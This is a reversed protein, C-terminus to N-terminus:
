RGTDVFRAHDQKIRTIPMVAPGQLLRRAEPSLSLALQLEGSLPMASVKDPRASQGSAADKPLPTGTTRGLVSPVYNQTESPLGNLWGDGYKKIASDVAGPGANYAALAKKRDGGYRQLMANLYDKGFRRHEAESDNQLPSIGFGPNSGTGLMIQAIGRAGAPSTLLGAGATHRGGSEQALVAEFLADGGAGAGTRAPDRKELHSRDAATASRMAAIERERREREAELQKAKAEGLTKIQGESAAFDSSEAPTATGDRMKARLADRRDMIAQRKPDFDGHIAAIRGKSDNEIVSQMISETTLKGDKGAMFIIGARMQESIPILKSALDTKINDILNKSDRIDSGQTREQDRSAVLEALVQKQTEDDGNMAGDLRTREESSLADAGTRRRLSEALGQRDAGSGYLAMSLNGIGSGSLKTLDGAYKEMGGMQNPNLVHFAAAQSMSLGLQNATAQLMAKPDNGYDSRLQGLTAGLLSEDGGPRTLGYKKYFDGVAGGGFTSNATSFAGGERWLQTDFVDMGRKAGLRGTFFQSAEGKGGGAALTSNVRALVGSAGSPDLGPIGSGVMASFMGAYGATGVGGLTARTQASAYDGIAEMVEGAQAFANSKGITEGILMAFRRTDQESRTVGIGRMRGLVNVGQEPELGFSRALGVGSGVEGPLGNLQEGTLNGLKAFQTSLKGAQEFTIRNADATGEVAAKLAGFSINVDGLTRKLRDYSVANDEAQGIKETVAGVAKGVALAAVGGLLGMLGAGFGASMGTGVAGAAVGGASGTAGLGAQAVRGLAAGAAAGVGMPQAPAQGGVIAGPQMYNVVQRAYKSRQGADPIMREWDLQHWPVDRQGSADVRRRLGPSVRMLSEFERRLRKVDEIAINDVPRFKVGSAKAASTGLGNFAAKVSEIQAKLGADDLETGVKIKITM